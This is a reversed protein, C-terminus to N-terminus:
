QKGEKNITKCATLLAQCNKPIVHLDQEVTAMVM